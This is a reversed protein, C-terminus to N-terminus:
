CKGVGLLSLGSVCAPAGGVDGGEWNDIGAPLGNNYVVFGASGTTLASSSDVCDSGQQVGTKYGKLTTTAGGEATVKWVDTTNWTIGSGVLTCLLNYSGTYKYIYAAQNTEHLMLWYFQESGGTGSARVSPGAQIFNSTAGLTLQAYHNQAFTDGAWFM